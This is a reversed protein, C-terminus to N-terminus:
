ESKTGQNRLLVARALLGAAGGAAVLGPGAEVAQAQVPKGVLLDLGQAHCVVWLDTLQVALQRLHGTRGGAQRGREGWLAGSVRRGTAPSSPTDRSRRMSDWHIAPCGGLESNPALPRGAGSTRVGGNGAAVAARM